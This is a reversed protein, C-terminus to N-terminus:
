RAVGFVPHVRKAAREFDAELEDAASAPATRPRLPAGSSTGAASAVADSASALARRVQAGVGSGQPPAPRRPLNTTVGAGGPSAVAGGFLRRYELVAFHLRAEPSSVQKELSKYLEAIKSVADPNATAGEVVSLEPYIPDGSSKDLAEAAREFLASTESASRIRADLARLPANESELTRRVYEQTARALKRLVYSQAVVAGYEDQIENVKNWDVGDAFQQLEAQPPADEAPGQAESGRVNSPSGPQGVGRGQQQALNQWAIASNVADRAYSQAESLKQGQAKLRGLSRKFEGAAQEPTEFSFKEGGYEIELFPAAVQEGEGEVQGEQSAAEAAALEADSM